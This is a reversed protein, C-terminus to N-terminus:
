GETIEHKLQMPTRGAALIDDLLPLSIRGDPRVLLKGRSVDDEKWVLVSLIDSPGVRYIDPPKKIDKLLNAKEQKRKDKAKEAPKVKVETKPKAMTQAQGATNEQALCPLGYLTAALVFAGNHGLRVM